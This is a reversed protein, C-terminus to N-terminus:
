ESVSALEERIAGLRLTRLSTRPRRPTPRAVNRRDGPRDLSPQKNQDNAYRTARFRNASTRDAMKLLHEADVAAVVVLVPRM